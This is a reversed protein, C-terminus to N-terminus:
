TQSAAYGRPDIASGCQGHLHLDTAADAHARGILKAKIVISGLAGGNRM